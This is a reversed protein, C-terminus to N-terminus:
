VGTRLDIQLQKSINMMCPTQILDYSLLASKKTHNIKNIRTWSLYLLISDQTFTVDM